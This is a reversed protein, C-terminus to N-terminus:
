NNNNLFVKHSTKDFSFIQWPTFYFRCIRIIFKGTQLVANEATMLKYIITGKPFRSVNINGTFSTYDTLFRGVADYFLIHSRPKVGQQIIYKLIAQRLLPNPFVFKNTRSSYIYFSENESSHWSKYIIIRFSNKKWHILYWLIVRFFCRGTTTYADIIKLIYTFTFRCFFYM